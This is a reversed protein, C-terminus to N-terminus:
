RGTRAARARSTWPPSARAPSCGSTRRTSGSASRRPWWPGRGSASPSPRSGRSCAASTRRGRPSSRRRCPTSTSRSGTPASCTSSASRATRPARGACRPPGSTPWCCRRVPPARRGTPPSCRLTTWCRRARLRARARRRPRGGGRRAAPQDRRGREHRRDHGLDGAARRAARRAAHDGARGRGARRGAPGPPAAPRRELGTSRAHVVGAEGAIRLHEAKRAGAPTPEPHPRAMSMWVPDRAAALDATQRGLGPRAAAPGPAGPDPSHLLVVALRRRRRTATAVLCRGAADTYGTKLGTTGPYGVRLLPNNNYLYLRGGRIPFPLVASRRRVIRALRRVRLVARAM